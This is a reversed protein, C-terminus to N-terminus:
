WCNTVLNVIIVTGKTSNFTLGTGGDYYIRILYMLIGWLKKAMISSKNRADVELFHTDYWM